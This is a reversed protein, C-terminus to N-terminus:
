LYPSATMQLCTVTNRKRSDFTVLQCLSQQLKPPGGKAPHMMETGMEIPLLHFRLCAWRQTRVLSRLMWSPWKTWNDNKIIQLYTYQLQTPSVKQVSLFSKSVLVM